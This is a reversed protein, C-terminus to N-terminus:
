ASQVILDESGPQSSQAVKLGTFGEVPTFTYSPKGAGDRKMTLAVEGVKKYPNDVDQVIEEVDYKYTASRNIDVNVTHALLAAKCAAAPDSEGDWPLAPSTPMPGPDASTLKLRYQSRNCVQFPLIPLPKGIDKSGTGLPAYDAVVWWGKVNGLTTAGCAKAGISVGILGKAMMRRFDTTEGTSGGTEYDYNSRQDYWYDIAQRKADDLDTASQTIFSRGNPTKDYFQSTLCSNAVVLAATGNHNIPPTDEHLARKENILHTGYVDGAATTSSQGAESTDAASAPAVFCTAAIAAAPFVAALKTSLKM